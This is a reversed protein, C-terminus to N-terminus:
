NVTKGKIAKSPHCQCDFDDGLSASVSIRGEFNAPLNLRRVEARRPVRAIVHPGEAPDSDSNHSPGRSSSQGM